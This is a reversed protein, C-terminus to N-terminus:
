GHDLQCQARAEIHQRVLACRRPSQLYRDQDAPDHIIRALLDVFAQLKPMIDQDWLRRDRRVPMVNVELQGTNLCEVLVGRDVDLLHMYTQVQVQEYFPVRHFLRNVRNKIEILLTRQPDIADIKGGVYWPLSGWPGVCTGAQLKYFTPDEHCEIGLTDRMYALVSHEHHTGYGTYLNRKLVDDVIRRETDPLHVSRLERSVTDYSRAVQDSSECPAGLTSDVLTRVDSHARIIDEAIQGETRLNNRRLAAWFGAPDCREWLLELGESLKKYRNAGICM